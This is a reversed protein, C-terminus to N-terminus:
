CKQKRRKIRRTSYINKYYQECQNATLEILGGVNYYEMLDILAASTRDLPDRILSIFYWKRELEQDLM